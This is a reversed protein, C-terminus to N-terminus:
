CWVYKPDTGEGEPCGSTCKTFHRTDEYWDKDWDYAAYGCNLNGEGAALAEVNALELDSMVNTKNQTLYLGYGVAAVVMAAVAMKLTKKKM